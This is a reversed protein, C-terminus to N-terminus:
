KPGIATDTHAAVFAPRICVEMWYPPGEASRPDTSGPRAQDIGRAALTATTVLISLGM